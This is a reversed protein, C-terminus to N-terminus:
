FDDEEEVPNVQQSWGCIYWEEENQRFWYTVKEPTGNRIERVELQVDNAQLPPIFDISEAEEKTITKKGTIQYTNIVLGRPPYYESSPDYLLSRLRYVDHQVLYEYYAKLTKEPSFVPEQQESNGQGTATQADAKGDQRCSVWVSLLLICVMWFGTSKLSLKM